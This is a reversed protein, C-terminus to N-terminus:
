IYLFICTNKENKGYFYQVFIITQKQAIRQFLTLFKVIEQSPIDLTLKKVLM